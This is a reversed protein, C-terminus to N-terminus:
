KTNSTNNAAEQKKLGAQKMALEERKMQMQDIRFNTDALQQGSEESKSLYGNGDTDISLRKDWVLLQTAQDILAKQQAGDATIQAKQLENEAVMKATDQKIQEAQITAQNKADAMQQNYQKTAESITIIKRKLSQLNDNLIAETGLEYDGGQSANFALQQMAKLKENLLRSNGVNIGINLSMHEMPDVSVTQLENTGENVFSGQKGECWAVKSYDYNALYDKGRFLNFMELSWSSSINGQELSNETVSKGQYGPQNGMRSPTMNAVEWADEKLSRLMTELVQVYQYTATTAIERMAQIANANVQADNFILTSEAQMKSLRQEMTMNADDSVLSQPILLISKFKNIAREIQFHYIRILATYPSLRAAIPKRDSDIHIQSLGNYPSKCKNLNTFNERQTDVPRFKTYVAQQNDSSIQGYGIIEGQYMQQIWDWKIDIDGNATDLEYDEDVVMQQVTGDSASYTLYGIKAETKAVYHVISINDPNTFVTGNIFDNKFNTENGIYDEESMGNTILRSKLINTRIDTSLERNTISKLYTIDEPKIFESYRDLISYLSKTFIRCGYDDDEVYINGSPVRFYELPSVIDFIVDNKYVERYTYCEECAWWYYYLQNYKVKADIVDNLLNLRLQAKTAREDNWEQVYEELMKEIDPTPQSQQGTNMTKNLENVLKQQMVSLVKDGFQKNRLFITDPDDTYIQYNNYSSIFEGLYKDKIPSLIDIDRLEGILNENEIDAKDIGYTKLVYAYMSKSVKGNAMDMFDRTQSKDSCSVALNVVYDAMQKTWDHTQKKQLSVRQNPLTKNGISDSLGVVM